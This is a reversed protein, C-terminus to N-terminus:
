AHQGGGQNACKAIEARVRCAVAAVGAAAPPSLPAGIEFSAGEIAYIICRRPLQGLARALEVAMALGGSHTSLGLAVDPVPAAAVDFRHITGPPAGSACADILFVAEAGDMQAVLATAEGGHEIIKVGRLLLMRLQRAVAPGAADDGRDANGIGFVICRPHDNAM